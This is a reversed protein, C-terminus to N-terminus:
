YITKISNEIMVKISGDLNLGVPTALQSKLLILPKGWLNKMAKTELEEHLWQWYQFPNKKYDNLEKLFLLKLKQEFINQLPLKTKLLEELSFSLSHTKSIKFNIGWGVVIHNKSKLECLIGAIKYVTKKKNSLIVLDNPWKITLESYNEKKGGCQKVCKWLAYGAILTIKQPPLKSADWKFAASILLSKNKRDLWESQQRGRGHSQHASQVWHVKKSDTSSKLLQLAEDQTSKCNDLRKTRSSYYKV